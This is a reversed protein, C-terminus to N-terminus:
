KESLRLMQHVVLNGIMSPPIDPGPAITFLLLNEVKILYNIAVRSITFRIAVYYLFKCLVETFNRLDAESFTYRRSESDENASYYFDEDSDSEIAAENDNEIPDEVPNGDHMGM